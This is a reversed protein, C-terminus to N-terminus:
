KKDERLVDDLVKALEELEYPKSVAACFGYEGWNSMIPDNSYGSSVIAKARPDLDLLVRVAEKGGMGAPVTLDLIVVDFPAASERAQRYLDLAQAGDKAVVVEYGAYALIKRAVKRVLEEDDMVLIKGRGISSYERADMEKPIAKEVAPLLVHFTAGGGPESEVTIWGQHKEVISYAIALGLGSGKEKTTFYPDFIKQLLEQPVGQGHDRISARVYRGAPLPMCGQADDAGVTTNEAWVEVTGGGPMAQVANIVLNNIVQGMQGEDADVPWLDEPISLECRVNSGRVAFGAMDEVLAGMSIIKKIPAGGKAFTLLQSTLHRARLAAQEADNLRELVEPGLPGLVKALSINGLMATLLNNFDHAIGGALIGVSELKQVKLLEEEMRKRETTDRAIVMVAPRGQYQILGASTEIDKIAGDKFRMKTEHVAPIKEGRMRGAFQQRIEEGCEPAALGELPMGVIEELSYGSIVAMARNGFKFSGDQVIVVGDEAQEVLVSYKAESEQLAEEARKREAIESSLQENTKKLEAVLKELCKKQRALDLFISVKNLFIRPNFPKTIFDVAGSEYGKFIHPEDTYVASLFIIPIQRTKEDHRMLEALEYGDMKPMQVDLIALAFDHHLTAKLAENGDAAKIIEADVESLIKECALLNEPRDDVILIKQKEEM